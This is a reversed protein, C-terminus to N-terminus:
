QIQVSKMSAKCVAEFEAHPVPKGFLYGQFALCGYQGLLARQETTEVGEAIVAMELTQGMNIITQVIAADSSNTAIDRVFSQDIKLQGLPLRKLNSLSSHGTGFDDMSFSIGFSKLQHMKAITDEVDDLVLSETLELKLKAPDIGALTVAAQVQEAFDAQYFQRASVNVALTLMQTHPYQQWEKLQACATELVWQGLPLILGTEEALPIFQAPSIMGREPHEWRLLAEAGVPCGQDDVQLQYFLRFQQKHMGQRIWSELTAREELIFQMAPDFFRLTNRGAKKAEYMATDARRLLDDLSDEAGRFLSIGISASSDHEQGQLLYPRSLAALIKETVTNAKAASHERDDALDELVVVFEDGGMRAITDGERVSSQLRRTVENLLLDGMAHGKTDNIKKFNDLDIFLIAGYVGDRASNTLAHQLRDTLLRRNPLKTLPDFFALDRIKEEAAKRETIDQVFVFSHEEGDVAIYNAIVEVPFITGDKRRHRTELVNMGKKRQEEWAQPQADSPFDPDFDWIHLGILEERSYGLSQCAYDNVYVVEGQPTLWYFANRSTNIATHSLNLDREIRKRETIDQVFTFSYEEGDSVIYNGTVEVPFITGNKRRHRTEINVVGTQRLGAWLQPWAEVPFDPDFEWVYRGVLEDRSYGLSKSAYDNVYMVMGQSNLRFFASRSKDIATQMLRLEHEDRKQKTIDEYIGLVGTIEDAADHLPAKSKRLWVQKGSGLTQPEEYALRSSRSNMVERDDALYLEAQERWALQADRKGIVNEPNAEGADTAFLTNCGLYRSERDKWFIRLPISEIVSHLLNRAEYMRQYPMRISGIFISNYIFGYAIVKYIHGLLNFVDTVDSYLTFFLESLAMVSVAAFLGVVDYPQPRRMQHLFRLATIFNLAILFYESRVKFATLGQGSIYTQPTWEPHLMGIWGLVGVLSLVGALALWRVGALSTQRWPLFAIALLGFAAFARGALWFDIAKEPGSPSIFDPMGQYSIVHLFDLMAVGVFICALLMFNSLREKDYVGWGVAFVLMSVVIAITELLTHLPVYSAIEKAAHLPPSLWSIIQVAVLM